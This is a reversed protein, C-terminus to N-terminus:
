QLLWSRGANVSKYPLVTGSPQSHVSVFIEKLAKGSEGLEYGVGPVTGPLSTVYWRRGSDTTVYINSTPGLIDSHRWAVAFAPSLMAISTATGGAGAGSTDVLNFFKGAIRWQVGNDDTSVPYQHVGITALAYGFRKNIVVKHSISGGTLMSNTVLTGFPMRDNPQTLLHGTLTKPTASAESTEAWGTTISLAVLVAAAAQVVSRPYTM